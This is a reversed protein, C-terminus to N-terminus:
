AVLAQLVYGGVNIVNTTAAFARVVAGNQLILGEVVWVLGSNAPITIPISDDPATTNGWQVTLLVPAASTNVAQLFVKDFLGATTGSQATHITTGPSGTAAVKILRGDTSGSLKRM